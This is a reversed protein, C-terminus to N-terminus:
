AAVKGPMGAVPMEAATVFRDLAPRDAVSLKSAEIALGKSKDSSAIVEPHPIDGNAITQTPPITSVSEGELNTVIAHSLEKEHKSPPGPNPLAVVAPEPAPPPNASETQPQEPKSQEPQPAPPNSPATPEGNVKDSAIYEATQEPFGPQQPPLHVPAGDM